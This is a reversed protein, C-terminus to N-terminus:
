NRKNREPIFFREYLERDMYTELLAEMMEDSIKVEKDVIDLWLPVGRSDEPTLNLVLRGMDKISNKQSDLIDIGVVTPSKSSRIFASSYGERGKRNVSENIVLMEGYDLQGFLIERDYVSIAFREDRERLTDGIMSTKIDEIIGILIIGEEECTDRLSQWYRKAYINYRILGGDMMIVSPHFREVAEIAAKVEIEALMTNKKDEPDTGREDEDELPSPDKSKDDLPTYIDALFLPDDRHKTSKALGQFAEVYHPQSGGVRNNSGDVGVIGGDRSLRELESKGLKELREVRGIDRSIFGRLEDRSIDFLNDYRAKLDINLNSVKDKLKNHMNYMNETRKFSWARRTFTM